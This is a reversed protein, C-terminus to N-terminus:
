EEVGLVKSRATELLSVYDAKFPELLSKEMQATLSWLVREESPHVISLTEHSDFRSLFEFFVLAESKSLSLAFTESDATTM